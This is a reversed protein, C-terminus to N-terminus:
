KKIMRRFNNEEDELHQYISDKLPIDSTIKALIDLFYIKDQRSDNFYHTMKDLVNRLILKQAWIVHLDRLMSSIINARVM